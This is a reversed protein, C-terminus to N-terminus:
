ISNRLHMLIYKYMLEIFIHMDLHNQTVYRREIKFERLPYETFSKFRFLSFSQFSWILDLYHFHNHHMQQLPVLNWCYLFSQLRSITIGSYVKPMETFDLHSNYSTMEPRKLLEDTPSRRHSWSYILFLRPLTKLPRNKFGQLDFSLSESIESLNLRFDIWIDFRTHFQIQM